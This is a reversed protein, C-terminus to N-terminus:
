FLQDSSDQAVGCFSLVVFIYESVSSVGIDGFM